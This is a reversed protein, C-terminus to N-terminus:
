NCYIADLLRKAAVNETREYLENALSFLANKDRERVLTILIIREDASILQQQMLSAICELVLSIQYKQLVNHM